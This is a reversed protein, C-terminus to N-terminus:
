AVFRVAGEEESPTTVEVRFDHLSAIRFEAPGPGFFTEAVVTENSREDSLKQYDGSESILCVEHHYGIVTGYPRWMGDRAGTRRYAFHYTRPVLPYDRAAAKLHVAAYVNEIRSPDHAFDEAFWSRAYYNSAIEGNPWGPGPIYIPWFPSFPSRHESGLQFLRREKAFHEEIFPGNIGLIAIPDVDLVGAFGLVDDRNLPLGKQLWRYIASRDRPDGVKQVGSAVREEWEVVLGDISGSRQQILARVLETHLPIAM